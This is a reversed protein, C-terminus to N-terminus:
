GADARPPSPTPLDIQQGPLAVRYGQAAIAAGAEASAYHYLLLRSRLEAPYERALDDV